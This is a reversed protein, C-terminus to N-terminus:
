PHHHPGHAQHQNGRATRRHHLIQRVRVNRLDPGVRFRPRRDGAAVPAPESRVGPAGQGAPDEYVPTWIVERNPNNEPTAPDYFIGERVEYDPPLISGLGINPYYRTLGSKSIVWIAVSNPDSEYTPGFVFDMYAIQELEAIIDENVEVFNPVYITSVDEEGNILQGEPGEFARDEARWYASGTFNEPQDIISVAYEAADKTDQRVSELQLSNLEATSITLNLMFEEAQQGMRRSAAENAQRGMQEISSVSLYAIILVSLTALGLIVLLLRVRISQKLFPFRINM